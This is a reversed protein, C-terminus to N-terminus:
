GCGNKSCSEVVIYAARKRNRRDGGGGKRVGSLRV